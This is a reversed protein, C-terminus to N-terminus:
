ISPSYCCSGLGGVLSCVAVMWARRKMATVSGAM